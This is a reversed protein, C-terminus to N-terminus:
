LELRQIADDIEDRMQIIAMGQQRLRVTMASIEVELICDNPQPTDVLRKSAEPRLPVPQLINALRSILEGVRKALSQLRGENSDLEAIIPIERPPQATSSPGRSLTSTDMKGDEQQRIGELLSQKFWDKGGGRSRMHIVYKPNLTYGIAEDYRADTFDRSM